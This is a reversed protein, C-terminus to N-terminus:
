SGAGKKRRNRRPQDGAGEQEDPLSEAVKKLMRYRMEALNMLM